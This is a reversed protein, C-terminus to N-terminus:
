SGRYRGWGRGLRQLRGGRSRSILGKRRGRGNERLANAERRNTTYIRKTTRLVCFWAISGFCCLFADNCLFAIRHFHKIQFLKTTSQKKKEKKKKCAKWGGNPPLPCRCPAAIMSPRRPRGGVIRRNAPNVGINISERNARPLPDKHIARRAHGKTAHLNIRSPDHNVTRQVPCTAPM